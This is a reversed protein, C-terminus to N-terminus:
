EEVGCAERIRRAYCLIMFAAEIASISGSDRIEM